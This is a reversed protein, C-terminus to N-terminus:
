DSDRPLDLQDRLARDANSHRSWYDIRLTKTRDARTTLRKGGEMSTEDWGSIAYPFAREFYVELVRDHGSLYELRYGQIKAPDFRAADPDFWSGKAREAKLPLHALRSIMSGPIIEFEGTPVQQPALRLRTWLEDELFVAPMKARTDGESEFYSFGVSEYNDGRLNLQSYVQGCWEQGSMTTKLTRPFQVVDAPTFVSTMLSYPYIGTVFKKTFNLKLVQILDVGAGAWDDLKVQESRSFPESVFIFVANGAHLEGYRSQTLKYRTLEGKGSMWYQRHAEGPWAEASVAEAGRSLSTASLLLLLIAIKPNV